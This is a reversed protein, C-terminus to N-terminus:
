SDRDTSVVDLVTGGIINSTSEENIEVVEAKWKQKYTKICTFIYGRKVGTVVFKGQIDLKNVIKRLARVHNQRVNLDYRYHVVTATMRETGITYAKVSSGRYNTAGLFKTKIVLM